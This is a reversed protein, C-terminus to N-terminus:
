IVWKILVEIEIIKESSAASLVSGAAKSIMGSSEIRDVAARTPGTSVSFDVDDPESWSITTFIKM